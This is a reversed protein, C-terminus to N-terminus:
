VAAVPLSAAAPAEVKVAVEVPVRGRAVGYLLLPLELAFTLFALVVTVGRAVRTALLEGPLVGYAVFVVVATVAFGGLSMIVFQSVTNREPDFRFMFPSRLNANLQVVGGTALAALLHGWEHSVYAAAGALLGALLGTLDALPGPGASLGSATWWFAAAVAVVLSDRLAFKSYM